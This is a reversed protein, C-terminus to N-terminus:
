CSGVSLGPIAGIRLGCSSALLIVARMREDAIDLFKQIIQHTYGFTKQSKVPPPMFKNIKTTNVM